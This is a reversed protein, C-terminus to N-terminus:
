ATPRNLLYAPFISRFDGARVVGAADLIRLCDWGGGIPYAALVEGEWPGPTTLQLPHVRVTDGVRVDHIAITPPEDPEAPGHPRSSEPCTVEGDSGVLEDGEATVADRCNGCMDPV